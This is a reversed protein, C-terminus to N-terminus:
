TPFEAPVAASFLWEAFFQDLDEGAIEECLAVFQETGQSTGQYRAVWQQLISFFAEDGVQARLAHLVVAGGDYVEFSFLDDETPPRATPFTPNQRDSLALAAHEAVTRLGSHELWLWEAYTAFSENLWIHQWDSPTVADGFWQHALEHAILFHAFADLEGSLDGTSFFPRGATELALGPESDILALGFGEFPYPGFLSSFYAVMQPAVDLLSQYRTASGTPVVHTYTVGDIIGREVIEYDGIALLILYTAMPEAFRWSWTAARGAQRKEILEGNAFAGVGDPVTVAIDFTAKDSPHDNSPLWTRAQAPENMVYTSAGQDLWGGPMADFIQVTSSHAFYRITVVFQSGLAIPEPPRIYLEPQDGPLQFEAVEGNVLVSDIELDIADLSFVDLDATATITLTAAGHILTERPDASLEIEYSDVDIGPNGIDDIMTDDLDDAPALAVDVAPQRPGTEASGTEAPGTEAPGTEPPGIEAPGTEPPGTSTPVDLATTSTISTLISTASNAERARVDPRTVCATVTCLVVAVAGLATRARRPTM